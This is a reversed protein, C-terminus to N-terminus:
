KRESDDRQQHNSPLRDRGASRLSPNRGTRVVIGALIDCQVAIGEVGLTFGVCAMPVGGRDVVKFPTDSVDGVNVPVEAALLSAWRRGTRIRLGALVGAYAEVREKGRALIRIAPPHVRREVLEATAGFIDGVNVALEAAASAAVSVSVRVSIFVVTSILVRPRASGVSLGASVDMNAAIHEQGPTLSQVSSPHLRHEVVVVDACTLDYVIVAFEM